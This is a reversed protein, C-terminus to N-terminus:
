AIRFPVELWHDFKYIYKNVTRFHENLLLYLTAFSAADDDDERSNRWMMVSSNFGDQRQENAMADTGLLAMVGRPPSWAVLEDISGVVVTDLDIYICQEHLSDSVQPSFVQIKNWWGQWGAELPFCRLNGEALIGSADDTLCVFDIALTKSSNIRRTVSNYLRNVYEAGYKTGWKVCIVSVRVREQPPGGDALAPTSAERVSENSRSSLPRIQRGICQEMLTWYTDIAEQQRGARRLLVNMNYHAERYEPALSLAESCHQLAGELDGEIM